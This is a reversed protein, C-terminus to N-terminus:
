QVLSQKYNLTNWATTNSAQFDVNAATGPATTGAVSATYSALGAIPGNAANTSNLAWTTGGVTAYGGIIGNTNTTNTTIAGTNTFNVTGGVSRSLTGLNLTDTSVTDKISSNGLNINTATFSQSNTGAKDYSFTSNGGIALTPSALSGTLSLTGANVTTTGTYTDAGSLTLTGAGNLLLSGSGTSNYITGSQNISAGSAPTFTETFSKIDNGTSNDGGKVQTINLTGGAAQTIALNSDLAIQGSLTNTGSTNQSNVVLAGSTNSSVPNIVGSYTLGGAAPTFNLTAGKTLDQTGTTGFDGGLRVTSASFTSGSNINLTGNNMLSFDGSTFAGGINITQGVASTAFYKGSASVTNNFTTAIGTGGGFMRIGAVASGNVTLTAGSGFTISSSVSNIEGWANGTTAAFTIPANITVGGTGLSEIKAQTGSKDIMNLVSSNSSNMTWASAGNWNIQNMNYSQDMTNTTGLTGAFSITGYGPQVGGWNNSDSWNFPTSGGGTWTQGAFAAANTLLLAGAILVFRGGSKRLSTKM